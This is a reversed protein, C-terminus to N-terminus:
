LSTAFEEAWIYVLKNYILISNIFDFIIFIFVKFFATSLLLRSKPVLGLIGAKNNVLDWFVRHIFFLFDIKNMNQTRNIFNDNVYMTMDRKDDTRLSFLLSKGKQRGKVCVYTNYEANYTYVMRESPSFFYDRRNFMHKGYSILRKVDSPMSEDIVAINGFENYHEYYSDM